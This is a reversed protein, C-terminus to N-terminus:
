ARNERGNRSIHFVVYVLIVVVAFGFLILAEFPTIYGSYIGAFAAVVAVLLASLTKLLM